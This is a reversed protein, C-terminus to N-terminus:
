WECIQERWSPQFWSTVATGTPALASSAAGPAAVPPYSSCAGDDEEIRARLYSQYSYTTGEKTRMGNIQDLIFAVVENSGAPPAANSRYNQASATVASRRASAGSSDAGTDEAAVFRSCAPVMEPHLFKNSIAHKGSFYSARAVIIPEYNVALNANNGFTHHTCLYIQRELSVFCFSLSAASSFLVISLSALAATTPSTCPAPSTHSM